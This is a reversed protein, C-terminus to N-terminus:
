HPPSKDLTLEVGAVISERASSHTLTVVPGQDGFRLTKKATDILCEQQELFDLGLIVDTTTVDTIIAQHHFTNGDVKLEVKVSGYTTVPLGNVGVLKQGHWPELQQRGKTCEWVEKRVLTVAAGTDVLFEARTGNVFGTLRYTSTSGVSLTPINTNPHQAKNPEGESARSKAGPTLLKGAGPWPFCM